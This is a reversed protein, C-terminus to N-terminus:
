RPETPNAMADPTANGQKELRLQRAYEGLSISSDAMSGSTILPLDIPSVIYDFHRTALLETSAATANSVRPESPEGSLEVVPRVLITTPTLDSGLQIEPTILPGYTSPGYTSFGGIPTNQSMVGPAILLAAIMLTRTM